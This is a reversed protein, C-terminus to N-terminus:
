PIVLLLRIKEQHRLPLQLTNVPLPCLHFLIDADKLFFMSIHEPFCRSTKKDISRYIKVSLNFNFMSDA